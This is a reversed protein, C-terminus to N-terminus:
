DHPRDNRHARAMDHSKEEPFILHEGYSRSPLFNTLSSVMHQRPFVCHGTVVKLFGNGNQGGNLFRQRLEPWQAGSSATTPEDENRRRTIIQWASSFFAVTKKKCLSM